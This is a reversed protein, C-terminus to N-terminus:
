DSELTTLFKNLSCSKYGEHHCEFICHFAKEAQENTDFILFSDEGNVKKLSIKPKSNPVDSHLLNISIINDLNFIQNDKLILM